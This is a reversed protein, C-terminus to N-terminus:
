TLILCRLSPVRTTRERLHRLLHVPSVKLWQGGYVHHMRHGAVKIFSFLASATYRNCPMTNLLRAMWLWGEGLGSLYQFHESQVIAAYYAIYAMMKQVFEDVSGDDDPRYGIRTLWQIESDYLIVQQKKDASVTSKNYWKPITLICKEHLLGMFIGYLQPTRNCVGVTVEALPFVFQPLKAVQCECQALLKTCLLSLSYNYRCQDKVINSNTTLVGTIDNIKRNVQELTASIQTIHVQVDKGITRRERKTAPDDAFPLSAQRNQVVEQLMKTAFSKAGSSWVIGAAVDDDRESGASSPEEGGHPLAGRSPEHSPADATKQMAGEDKEPRQQVSVNEKEEKKKEQLQREEELRRQREEEEKQQEQQRIAHQRMREEEDRKQQEAQLQQRLREKEQKDKIAMMAVMSDVAEDKVRQRAEVAAAVEDVKRVVEDLEDSVMRNMAGMNTRLCAARSRAQRRAHADEVLFSGKARAVAAAALKDATEKRHAEYYRMLVEADSVINIGPQMGAGGLNSDGTRPSVGALPSSGHCVNDDDDIYTWRGSNETGNGGGDGGEDDAASCDPVRVVFAGRQKLKRFYAILQPSVPDSSHPGATDEGQRQPLLQQQEEEEDASSSSSGDDEDFAPVAYSGSSQM